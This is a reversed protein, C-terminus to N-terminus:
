AAVQARLHPANAQFVARAFGMPTASRFAARDDGPSAFHIRNDPKISLLSPDQEQEPMVFGNGTWLCTKKTYHDRREFATYQWPDFYFDPKGLHPMGSLVGVPNEIAYPAGSWECVQRCAEFIELADRLMQGGKLVFDRAGSGAVHTCPPFAFAAVIHGPPRRITRADGWVYHINGEQRPVRISHEIDFCWCEYGAEAWPKVMNGTEDCISIVTGRSQM